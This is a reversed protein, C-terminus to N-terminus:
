ADVIQSPTPHMGKLSLLLCILGVKPEFPQRPFIKTTSFVLPQFYLLNEVEQPIKSKGLKRPKKPETRYVKQFSMGTTTQFVTDIIGTQTGFDSVGTVPRGQFVRAKCFILSVVNSTQFPRSNVCSFQKSFVDRSETNDNLVHIELKEFLFDEKNKETFTIAFMPFLVM